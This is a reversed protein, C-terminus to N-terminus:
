CSFFFLDCTRSAAVITYSWYTSSLLFISCLACSFLSHWSYSISDLLLFNLESVSSFLSGIDLIRVLSTLDNESSPVLVPTHSHASPRVRSTVWLFFGFLWFLLNVDPSFMDLTRALSSISVTEPSRVRVDPLIKSNLKLINQFRSVLSFTTPFSYPLSGNEYHFHWSLLIFQTTTSSVRSYSRFSLQTWGSCSFRRFMANIPRSSQVLWVLAPCVQFSFPQWSFFIGCTPEAKSEWGEDVLYQM